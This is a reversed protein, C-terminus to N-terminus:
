VLGWVRVAMDEGSEKERSDELGVVGVGSSAVGVAVVADADPAVPGWAMVNEQELCEQYGNVDTVGAPGADGDVKGVASDRVKIRGVIRTSGRGVGYGGEAVEVILV